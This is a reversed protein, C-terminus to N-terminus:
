LQYPNSRFDIELQRVKGQEYRLRAFKPSLCATRCITLHHDPYLQKLKNIIGSSSSYGAAELLEKRPYGVVGNHIIPWVGAIPEAIVAQKNVLKVLLADVELSFKPSLWQAFRMAIRYDTAWTGQNGYTGGQRIDLLDATRCKRLVSLYQIYEISEQSRLWQSPQKSRGFSKAMQTLNVRVNEDIKEVAFKVRDIEVMQLSNANREKTNM